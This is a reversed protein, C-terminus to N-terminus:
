IVEGIDYITGNSDIEVEIIEDSALNTLEIVLNGSEDIYVYDLLNNEDLYEQDPIKQDLKITFIDFFSSEPKQLSILSAPDYRRKIDSLNSIIDYYPNIGDVTDHRTFKVLETAGINEFLLNTITDVSVSEEIISVVDRSPVRVPDPKSTESVTSTNTFSDVTGTGSGTGPGSGTGTGSGTGSGTGPGAGSGAGSNTTIIRTSQSSSPPTYFQKTYKYGWINNTPPMKPPIRPVQVTGPGRAIFTIPNVKSQTKNDPASPRGSGRGPVGFGKNKNDSM